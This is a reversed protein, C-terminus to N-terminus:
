HKGKSGPHRVSKLFVPEGHWIFSLAQQSRGAVIDSVSHRPEIVHAPMDENYYYWIENDTSLTAANTSITAKDLNITEYLRAPRRRDRNSNKFNKPVRSWVIERMTSFVGNMAVKVNYKFLRKQDNPVNFEKKLTLVNNM